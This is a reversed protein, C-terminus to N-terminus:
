PLLKNLTKIVDCNGGSGMRERIKIEVSQKLQEEYWSLKDNVGLANFDDGHVVVTINREPHFFVGPSAAGSQFGVGELCDRYCDEWISGADRTGHVRRVQRAVYKYGLGMERQSGIYVSRTPIGNLNAKQHFDVISTQRPMEAKGKFGVRESAFRSFMMRQAELPPTSAYMDPPQRRRAQQDRMFGISM